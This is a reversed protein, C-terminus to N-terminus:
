ADNGQRRLLEYLDFYQFTECKGFDDVTLAYHDYFDVVTRYTMDNLFVRDVNYLGHPAKFRDGIKLHDQVYTIIDKQNLGKGQPMSREAGVIERHRTPVNWYNNKAM